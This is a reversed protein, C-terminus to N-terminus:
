PKSAKDLGKEARLHGMLRSKLGRTPKFRLCGLEVHAYHQLYFIGLERLEIREGRAIAEALSALVADVATEANPLSWGTLEAVERVLDHRIM